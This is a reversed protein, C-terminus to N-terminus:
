KGISFCLLGNIYIDCLGFFNESAYGQYDLIFRKKYNGVEILAAVFSTDFHFKELVVFSRSTSYVVVQSELLDKALTFKGNEHLHFELIDGPHLKHILKTFDYTKPM